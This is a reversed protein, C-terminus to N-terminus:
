GEAPKETAAEAAPEGASAAPEEAPTAPEEAPAAPEEAPAAPEEAPAAPEESAAPEEAAPAPAEQAQAETTVEDAVAAPVVPEEAAKKRGRSGAAAPAKDEAAPEAAPAEAEAEAAAPAAAGPARLAVKKDGGQRAKRVLSAATVSLSAGKALWADVKDLDLTLQAPKTVPNYFGVSDLYEGGRPTRNDAVVIRYSPQKKRGVRRLRIRVSM